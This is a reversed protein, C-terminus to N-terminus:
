GYDLNYFNFNNTQKRRFDNLSILKSVNKYNCFKSNNTPVLM